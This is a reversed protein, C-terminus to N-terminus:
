ANRMLWTHLDLKEDDYYDKKPRRPTWGGTWGDSGVFFPDNEKMEEAEKDAQAEYSTDEYPMAVGANQEYFTLFDEVMDFTDNLYAHARPGHYDQYGVGWNFGKCGLHDLYCIDSFIGDGVRAGSAKVAARTQDDDYQYMVVDTGGRDFEIMWDYQKGDPADFYAATSRGSEEGVTLLIDFEIGLTPLMDLIIYAGLRDDLARSHVVLGDQTKSYSAERQHPLGVTDLHAVALVSSGNDKYYFFDDPIPQEVMYRDLGFANGFQSERMTCINALAKRSFVTAPDLM